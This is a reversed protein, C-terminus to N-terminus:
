RSLIIFSGTTSVVRLGEAALEKLIIELTEAATRDKLVAIRGIDLM